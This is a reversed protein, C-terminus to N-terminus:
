LTPPHITMWYNQLLPNLGTGDMFGPFRLLYDSVETWPLGINEPVNRMLVFPSSGIKLDFPYIGLIMSDLFAQVLAFVIMTPAEWKKATFMLIVGLVAHWFLWLIFSGEQGEWFASFVYKLPLETSSHKWVYDYEFYHSLPLYFLTLVIGMVSAVHILFSTRALKKFSSQSNKIFFYYAIAAVVAGTFDLSVFHRGLQGP